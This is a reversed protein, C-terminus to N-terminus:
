KVEKTYDETADTDAPANKQSMLRFEITNYLKIMELGAGWGGRQIDL